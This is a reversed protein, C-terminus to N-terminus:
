GTSSIISETSIVSENGILTTIPVNGMTMGLGKDNTVLFKAPIIEICRAQDEILAGCGVRSFWQNVMRVRLAVSIM